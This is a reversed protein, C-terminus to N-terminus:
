SVVRTANHIGNYVGKSAASEIDKPTANTRAINITVNSTVATSKRRDYARSKQVVGAARMIAEEFRGTQVMREWGGGNEHRTIAEVLAQLQRPDSLNIGTTATVNQGLRQTLYDSVAKIYAGTNNENSPAWTRIFDTITRAGANQYMKLQRGLAYIGQDMTAYHAFGDSSKSDRINGPNNNRIGKPAKKGAPGKVPGSYKPLSKQTGGTYPAPAPANSAAGPHNGSGVAVIPANWALTPRSQRSPESVSSVTNTPSTESGPAANQQAALERKKAEAIDLLKQNEEDFIEKVGAKDGSFVRSITKIGAALWRTGREFWGPLKKAINELASSINFVDNLYGVAWKAGIKCIDFVRELSKWVENASAANDDLGATLGATQERAKQLEEAFRKDKLYQWANGLGTAQAYAAATADDMGRMKESVEALVESMDRTKGSADKLSVGWIREFQSAYGPITRLRNAMEGLAQEVTASDGGVAKVAMGIQKMGSISSSSFKALNFDRSLSRTSAMWSAALAAGSAAARKGFAAMKKGASQVAANFRAQSDGDVKFGLNVFFGAISSAM